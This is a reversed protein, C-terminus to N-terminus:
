IDAGSQGTAPRAISGMAPAPAQELKGPKRGPAKAGQRAGVTRYRRDLAALLGGVAMFITGLWIWRIFPKTQIRVSWASSTSDLPEGMAIFLDRALNGDIGAETMGDRRVDYVRKQSRILGIDRGEREVQFSAEAASYNPGRVEELSVFTFTYGGMDHSDNIEMRVTQEETYISTLAVGVTFVALGLHAVTMGWFAAPTHMVASLRNRKNRVRHFVGYVTTASVWIALALTAVASLSFDLLQTTLVAALIVSGVALAILM